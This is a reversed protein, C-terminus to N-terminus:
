QKWAAAKLSQYQNCDVAPLALSYAVASKDKYSYSGDLNQTMDGYGIDAETESLEILQEQVTTNGEGESAYTGDFLAVNNNDTVTGEITGSIADKGALHTGFEGTITNGGDVSDVKLYAVDNGSTGSAPKNLLYCLSAESQASQAVANAAQQERKAKVLLIVIIVIAVVTIILSIPNPKKESM